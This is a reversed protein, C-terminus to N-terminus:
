KSGITPRKVVMSDLDERESREKEVEKIIPSLYPYDQAHFKDASTWLCACEILSPLATCYFDHPRAYTQNHPGNMRLYCNTRSPVSCIETLRQLIVHDGQEQTSPSPYVQFAKRMRYVRDYAEKPSLRKLALQVVENEEPILDDARYHWQM